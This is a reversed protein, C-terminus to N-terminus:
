ACAESVPPAPAPQVRAELYVTGSRRLAVELGAAIMAVPALLVGAAISALRRRESLPVARADTRRLAHYLNLDGPLWGVLGDLWGIAIQGGRVQSEREVRFGCHGLRTALAPSSLHVLHRPLDLHLWRDGFAQAQLSDNDPAAVVVVGDTSLIRKASRIADGPDPLHELSHWFVIAAWEGEVQALPEDRVDPRRSHRELGVADRGRRRLADILVGDGAGVDLVRGPPAIRDLRRALAGRTRRLLLDGVLSFRRGSEPRYWSGYADALERETPWPDTTAAGCDACRTRGVLRTARADFRSGCWVCGM